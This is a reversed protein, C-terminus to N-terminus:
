RKASHVSSLSSAFASRESAATSTIDMFLSRAGGVPAHKATGVFSHRLDHISLGKIETAM